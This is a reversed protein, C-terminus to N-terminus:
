QSLQGNTVVPQGYKSGSPSLVAFYVGRDITDAVFLTRGDCFTMMVGGPHLSSPRPADGEAAALNANIMEPVAATNTVVANVSSMSNIALAVSSPNSSGADGLESPVNSSTATGIGFGNAGLAPSAWTTAQLNESILVTASQGDYMSSMTNRRGGASGTENNDLFVGAGQAITQDNASPFTTGGDVWDISNIHPELAGTGSADNWAAQDIYGANAVYSIAGDTLHAPDDPCTYAGVPNAALAAYGSGPGALLRDYLARNDMQPLLTVAWSMQRSGNASNDIVLWQDGSDFVGDGDVDVVLRDNRLLPLQERNNTLFNMVATGINKQHDICQTQRGAERANQVAPLILSALTAIIAIVVLLEILTFGGRSAARRQPRRRVQM